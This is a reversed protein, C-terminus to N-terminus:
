KDNVYRKALVKAQKSVSDQGIEKDEKNVISIIKGRDWGLVFRYLFFEDEGLVKQLAKWNGPSRALGSTWLVAGLGNCARPHDLNLPDSSNLVPVGWSFFSGRVIIINEKICQEIAQSIIDIANM